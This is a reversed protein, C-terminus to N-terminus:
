PLDSAGPRLDGEVSGLRRATSPPLRRELEDTWRQASRWQRLRRRPRFALRERRLGDLWWHVRYGTAMAPTEFSRRALLVTPSPRPRDPDARWPHPFPARMGGVAAKL